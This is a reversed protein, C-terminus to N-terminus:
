LLRHERVPLNEAKAITLVDQGDSENEQRFVVAADSYWAMSHSRVHEARDKFLDTNAVFRALNLDHKEAYREALEDIGSGDGTVLRIPVKVNVLLSDLKREVTDFCHADHAGAVIVRFEPRVKGLELYWKRPLHVNTPADEFM